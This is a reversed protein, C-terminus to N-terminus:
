VLPVSGDWPLSISDFIVRDRTTNVTYTSTVPRSISKWRMMTAVGKWSFNTSNNSSITYIVPLLEDKLTLPNAVSNLYTTHGTSGISFSHGEPVTWGTNNQTRCVLHWTTSGGPGVATGNIYTVTTFSSSSLYAIYGSPDGPTLATCVDHIMGGHNSLAGTTSQWSGFWWTYPAADDAVVHFRPAATGITQSFLQVSADRLPVGDTATPITSANPTGGIFGGSITDGSFVVRWNRNDADNGKQFVYEAYGDPSQIRFWANTNGLGNAGSSASTIIDSTSNYTTGDSSSLVQWGALKLTEKVNFIGQTWTSITQNTSAVIAM